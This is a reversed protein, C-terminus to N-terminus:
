PRGQAIGITQTLGSLSVFTQVTTLCVASNSTLSVVPQFEGRKGTWGALSPISSSPLDLFASQGGALNFNSTPGVAAASSDTFGLSGACAPQGSISSVSLRMTQGTALGQVDFFPQVQPTQLKESAATVGSATTFVEATALCASNLDILMPRIEARKGVTLGLATSTLDLSGIQGPALTLAQNAPGIANGNQDQFGLTCVAPFGINGMAKLRLTQGSALGILGFNPPVFAAPCIGYGGGGAVAQAFQNNLQWTLSGQSDFPSTFVFPHVGPSFQTPQGRQQPPEIFNNSDGAGITVINAELSVYGFYAVGTSQVCTVYPTIEPLSQCLAPAVSFVIAVSLKWYSQNLREVIPLEKGRRLIATGYLRVV